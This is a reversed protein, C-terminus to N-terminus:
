KIITPFVNGFGKRLFLLDGLSWLDYSHILIKLSTTLLDDNFLTYICIDLFNQESDMELNLIKIDM